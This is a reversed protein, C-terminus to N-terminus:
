NVAAGFFVLCMVMNFQNNEQALKLVTKGDGNKTQLNANGKTVLIKVLELNGSNVAYHLPLYDTGKLKMEADAGHEFLVKMVEFHRNIIAVWLASTYDKCYKNVKAGRSILFKIIDVRNFKAAAWLPTNGDSFVGNVKMGRRLSLSKSIAM